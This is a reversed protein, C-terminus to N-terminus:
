YRNCSLIPDARTTRMAKLAAAHMARGAGRSPRATATSSPRPLASGCPLRGTAPATDGGRASDATRRSGDPGRAGTVTRQVSRADAHPDPCTSLAQTRVRGTWALAACCAPDRTRQEQEGTRPPHWRAPHVAKALCPRRGERNRLFAAHRTTTVAQVEGAHDDICTRAHVEDVITAAVGRTVAGSPMYAHM